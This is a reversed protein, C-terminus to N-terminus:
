SCYYSNFFLLSCSGLGRVTVPLLIMVHFCEVAVLVGLFSHVVEWVCCNLCSFGFGVLDM